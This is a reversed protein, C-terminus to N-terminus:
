VATEQKIWKLYKDSGKIIPVAVVEPVSYSHNKRVTKELKGFLQTRTKILLLVEKANEIKGKWHFLSMIGPIMNVCAALRKKLVAGAIKEAEKKSSATVLVMIYGSM